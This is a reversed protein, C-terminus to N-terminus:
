YLLGILWLPLRKGVPMAIQDALVYSDPLYAIQEFSKDRGGVEFTIKGDVKFDGHTKSYEM